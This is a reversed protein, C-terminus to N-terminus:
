MMPETTLPSAPTSSTHAALADGHQDGAAAGVELGQDVGLLGSLQPAALDHRDEGGLLPGVGQLPRRLRPDGAEDEGPLGERVVSGHGPGDNVLELGELHIQHHQGAEEVDEGPLDHRGVGVRDQVDM